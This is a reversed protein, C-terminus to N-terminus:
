AAGPERPTAAYFICDQVAIEPSTTMMIPVFATSAEVRGDRVHLLDRSVESGDARTAVFPWPGDTRVWGLPAGPAVREFNHRDIAADVTLDAGPHPADGYRITLGPQLCVRVPSAVVAIAEPPRADPAGEPGLREAALFRALGERAVRDPEADGTMGCEVVVAPLEDQVAEILAGLRLDSEVYRAAFLGTLALRAPDSRPGVGYPPTHGTTNHVDVLAEPRLARIRELVAHALEGERGQFPPLFCRNLDRQGFLVRHAFGPPELAAEVSAVFFCTDVAPVAGSRLWAHVARSGSPENGHLLTSVVRCRSRDRGAVPIWAPGGLARLFGEVDAPWADPSAPPAVM